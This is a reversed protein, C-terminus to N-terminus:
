KIGTLEYIVDEVRAKVMRQPAAADVWVYYISEERQYRIRWATFKGAPVTVDGGHM